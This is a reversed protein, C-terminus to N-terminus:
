PVPPDFSIACQGVEVRRLTGRADRHFRLTNGVQPLCGRDALWYRRPSQGPLAAEVEWGDEMRWVATITAPPPSLDVSTSTAHNPDQMHASDEETQVRM